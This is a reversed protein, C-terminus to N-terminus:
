CHRCRLERCLCTLLRSDARCSTLWYQVPTQRRSPVAFYIYALTLLLKLAAGVLLKLLPMVQSSLRAEYDVEARRFIDSLEREESAMTQARERGSSQEHEVILGVRENFSAIFCFLVYVGFRTLLM